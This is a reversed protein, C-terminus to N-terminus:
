YLFRRLKMAIGLLGVGLLGLSAPEPIPPPTTMDITLNASGPGGGFDVIRYQETVSYLGTPSLASLPGATGISSFTATSLTAGSYLANTTSILTTETVSVTSGTLANVSFSSLFNKVGVATLGQATFYVNLVGPVNSGLGETQSDFVGPGQLGNGLLDHFDGYTLPGFSVAGTGTAVTTILGSNVGAQQLGASILDAYASSALVLPMALLM